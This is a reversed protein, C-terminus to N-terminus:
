LDYRNLNRQQQQQKKKIKTNENKFRFVLKWIERRFAELVSEVRIPHQFWYM